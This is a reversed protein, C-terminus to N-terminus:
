KEKVYSGPAAEIGKALKKADIMKGSLKKNWEHWNIWWSEQTKTANKMWDDANKPTKAFEYYGYKGKSPPNVVGAVHGSEALTFTANPLLKAGEYTTKWPSIHDKETSLFYAPNKIKSLDIKIDDLKIKGKVLNNNLYMNRLYWSHMKAPMRTSDGNWYLIDFPFPTKGLLYNNVVFSWILDNARLMSFTLAMESGDLYGKEAMRKELTQIQEEDIFVSIEGADSFDLLTTLFSAANIRKDNKENLYALTTALLTGGLCYGMANVQKEGTIELIKDVATLLGQKAYDEFGFDKHKETPNVWSIMFVTYGSGVLWKVLSNQPQLDAIYYKNIWAPIFLLPTQHVQKTSPAYQILQLLDNQFVVQGETIALNKGLEYQDLDTQAIKGDKLDRALNKLGSVLNEANSDLTEKLVNPNTWIFNSPSVADLYQRIFFEVKKKEKGDIGDIKAAEDYLWDSYALYSDKVYKFWPLSNWEDTSFRRDQKIEEANDNDSDDLYQKASDLWLKSFKDYLKLNSAYFENPDAAVKSFFHASAESLNLPDPDKLQDYEIKGSFQKLIDAYLDASESLNKYFEQMDPTKEEM